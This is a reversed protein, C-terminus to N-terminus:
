DAGFNRPYHSVDSSCRSPEGAINMNKGMLVAVSCGVRDLVLKKVGCLSKLVKEVNDKELKM